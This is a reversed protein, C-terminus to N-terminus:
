QLLEELQNYTGTKLATHDTKDTQHFSSMFGVYGDILCRM